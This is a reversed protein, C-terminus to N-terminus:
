REGPRRLRRDLLEIALLVEAYARQLAYYVGRRGDLFGCRVFYTYIFMLPPAVVFMTRIRDVFDLSSHKVGDLHSAELRAYSIQSELWRRLPKRDDHFIRSQLEAIRGELVVRQTHGDQIYKARSRRYLVVVPPYAGSRIPKGLICYTFRARYGVVDDSPSLRALEAVFDDDLVYDSDLALVWETAIGTQSLGYNWQNAHSDFARRFTQVQRYGAIIELTKDESGSDLAVVRPFASLRSLTRGINAEENLALILPTIHELM